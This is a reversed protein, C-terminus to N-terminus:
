KQSSDVEVFCQTALRRNIVEAKADQDEVMNMKTDDQPGM